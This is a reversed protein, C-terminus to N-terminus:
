EAHLRSREVAFDFGVFEAHIGFNRSASLEVPWVILPAEENFGLSLLGRSGATATITISTAACALKTLRINACDAVESAAPLKRAIACVAGRARAGSIVPPRPQSFVALGSESAASLPLNTRSSKQVYPQMLQICTM